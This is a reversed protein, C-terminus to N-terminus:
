VKVYWDDFRSVEELVRRYGNGSLLDNLANKKRVDFNTECTIIRIDFTSFDFASLIDLESGETDISLYDIEKPANHRKLLDALSVTAVPYTTALTTRERAYTEDATALATLTSIGLGAVENFSITEGTKSWVCDFDVECSRNKRLAAHWGRAPEAVIGSWGFETELLHTNSHRIGDIAGFEVFYGGRKLSTQGLVFLDQRAQAKSSPILKILRGATLDDYNSLLELVAESSTRIERVGDDSLIQLGFPRLFRRFLRAM